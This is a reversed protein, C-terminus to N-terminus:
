HMMNVCWCSTCQGCFTFVCKRNMWWRLACVYVHHTWSTTSSPSSSSSWWSWSQLSQLAFHSPSLSTFLASFIFVVSVASLAAIALLKIPERNNMVIILIIHALLLLLLQVSEICVCDNILKGRRRENHKMKQLLFFCSFFFWLKKWNDNTRGIWWKPRLAVCWAFCLMSSSAFTNSNFVIARREPSRM